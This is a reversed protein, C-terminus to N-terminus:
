REQLNKVIPRLKDLLVDRPCPQVEYLKKAEKLLTAIIPDPSLGFESLIDAGFTQTIMAGTVFGLISANAPM